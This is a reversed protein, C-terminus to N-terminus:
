EWLKNRLTQDRRSTAPPYEAEISSAILFVIIADSLRWILLTFSVPSVRSSAKWSAVRPPLWPLFFNRWSTCLSSCSKKINHRRTKLLQQNWLNEPTLTTDFITDAPCLYGETVWVWVLSMVSSEKYQHQSNLLLIKVIIWPQLNAKCVDESKKIM